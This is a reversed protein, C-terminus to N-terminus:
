HESLHSMEYMNQMEYNPIVIRQLCPSTQLNSSEVRAGEGLSLTQEWVRLLKSMFNQAWSSQGLPVM